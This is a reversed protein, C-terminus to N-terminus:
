PAEGVIGLYAGLPSGRLASALEPSVGPAATEERRMSDGLMQRRLVASAIEAGHRQWDVPAELATPGATELVLSQVAIQSRMAPDDPQPASERDRGTDLDAELLARADVIGAGMSFTDWGAPQRATAMVLRRFMAQVTEGRARAAAI